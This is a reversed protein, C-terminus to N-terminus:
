DWPFMETLDQPNFGCQVLEPRYNGRAEATLMGALISTPTAKVGTRALGIIRAEIFKASKPGITLSIVKKRDKKM